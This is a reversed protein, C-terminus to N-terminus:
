ALKGDLGEERDARAGLERLGSKGMPLRAATAAVRGSRRLVKGAVRAAGERREDRTGLSHGRVFSSPEHRRGARLQALSCSRVSSLM